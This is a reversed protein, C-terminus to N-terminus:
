PKTCFVHDLNGNSHLQVLTFKNDITAVVLIRGNNEIYINNLENQLGLSILQIGNVGFTTDLTGNSVYSALAIKNDSVGAAIIKGDSKTKILSVSAVNGIATIVTGTRALYSKDGFGHNLHGHKNYQALLFKNDVSGSIIINRNELVVMSNIVVNNGFALAVLGLNGFNTDLSGSKKYKELFLNNNDKVLALIKGNKQVIVNNIVKSNNIQAFIDNHNSNDASIVFSSTLLVVLGILNFKKYM